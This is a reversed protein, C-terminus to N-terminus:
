VSSGSALPAPSVSTLQWRAPPSLPPRQQVVPPATPSDPRRQMAIPPTLKQSSDHTSYTFGRSLRIEEFYTLSPRNVTFIMNAYVGWIRRLVGFGEGFGPSSGRRRRRTSIASPASLPCAATTPSPFGGCSELLAFFFSSFCSRCAARFASRFAPSFSRRRASMSRRLRSHSSDRVAAGDCSARSAISAARLSVRSSRTPFRTSSRPARASLSRRAASPPCFTTSSRSNASRM